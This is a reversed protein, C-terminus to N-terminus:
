FAFEAKERGELLVNAASGSWGLWKPQQFPQWQFLVDYQGRWKVSSSHSESPTILGENKHSYAKCLQLLHCSQFLLFPQCQSSCPAWLLYREELSLSVPPFYVPVTLLHCMDSCNWTQIRLGQFMAPLTIRRLVAMRRTAGQGANPM